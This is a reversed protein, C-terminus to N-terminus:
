RMQRRLKKIGEHVDQRAADQSVGLSEAIEQYPRDGAYRMVVAQRQKAPLKRVSEWLEDDREVPGGPTEVLPEAVPVPRRAAARHSDIAKRRAIAFLWARLNSADRLRPYARLASLMTEQFCDEAEVPGVVGVLLRLVAAGHEDLLWQFPPFAETPLRRRIVTAASV